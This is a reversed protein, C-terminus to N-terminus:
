LWCGMAEGGTTAGLALLHSEAVTVGTTINTAIAVTAVGSNDSRTADAIVVSVAAAAAAAAAAPYTRQCTSVSKRQVFAM